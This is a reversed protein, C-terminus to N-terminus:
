FRIVAYFMGPVTANTGGSPTFTIVDGENVYRNEYSQTAPEDTSSTGGSGAAFSLAGIDTAAQPTTVAVAITGTFTAEIVGGTRVIYGRKGAVAHAAIPSTAASTTYGWVFLENSPRNKTITM